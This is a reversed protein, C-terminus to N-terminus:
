AKVIYLVGTEERPPLTDVVEVRTVVNSTIYGSDNTLQSVKTPINSEINSELATLEQELDYNSVYNSELTDLSVYSADNTLQSVKTPISNQIPTLYDTINTITIYNDLNNVINQVQEKTTYNTLADSLDVQTIISEPLDALLHTHGLEAYTEDAHNKTVYISLDVSGGEGDGGLQAEAIEQAVYDKTAFVSLDVSSGDSGGGLQAEAIEIQVYDKTAYNTLDINGIDINEIADDVYDNVYDKTAFGSLDVGSGDGSGGGSLQAKAIETSVYNKTAYDTLDVNAGEGAPGQPGQPGAPGQPGPTLEITEIANDVYDKTAYGTLNMGSITNNLKSVASSVKAVESNTYAKANSAVTNLQEESVTDGINDNIQYLADEIKNMKNKTIIDGIEWETKNYSDDPLFTEVEEDIVNLLAYGVVAGNILTNDDGVPLLVNIDIPPLTFRNKDNSENHADNDDYLHIQLKHVGVETFQDINEYSFVVQLKDDIVESKETFVCKSGDPKYIRVNGYSAQSVPNNAEIKGFTATKKMEKITFLCVIDGDGRYLYIPSDLTAQDNKITITREIIIAM